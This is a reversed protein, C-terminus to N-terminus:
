SDLGNPRRDIRPSARGISSCRTVPRPSATLLISAALVAPRDGSIPRSWSNLRSLSRQSYAFSDTAWSTWSVPSAPMPFDLSTSAILSNTASSPAPRAAAIMSHRQEGWERSLLREGAVSHRPRM